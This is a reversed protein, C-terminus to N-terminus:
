LGEKYKIEDQGGRGRAKQAVKNQEENSLRVGNLELLQFFVDKKIVGQKDIQVLFFTDFHPLIRIGLFSHL